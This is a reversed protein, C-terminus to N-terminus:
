RDCHVRFEMTIRSPARLLDLTFARHEATCGDPLESLSVTAHCGRGDTDLVPVAAGNRADPDARDAALAASINFRGPMLRVLRTVLPAISPAPLIGPLTPDSSAPPPCVTSLTYRANAGGSDGIVRQILVIPITTVDVGFEVSAGPSLRRVSDVGNAASFGLSLQLRIDYHCNGGAAEEVVKLEIQITDDLVDTPTGRDDVEPEASVVSCSGPAGQAPIAYAVLSMALIATRDPNDPLPSIRVMIRSGQACSTSASSVMIRIENNSDPTFPDPGVKCIAGTTSEILSANWEYACIPNIRIVQSAGTGTLEGPTPDSDQGTSATVTM